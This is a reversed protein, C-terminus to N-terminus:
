IGSSSGCRACTSGDPFFFSVVAVDFATKVDLSAVFAIKYKFFALIWEDRGNEQWEWSRRTNTLVAQMDDCKVGSEAGM